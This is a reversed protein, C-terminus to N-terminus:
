ETGEMRKLELRRTYFGEDEIEVELMLQIHDFMGKEIKHVYAKGKHSLVKRDTKIEPITLLMEEEEEKVIALHFSIIDGVFPFDVLRYEHGTIDLGITALQYINSQSILRLLKKKDGLREICREVYQLILPTQEYYDMIRQGEKVYRERVENANVVEKLLGLHNPRITLPYLAKGLWSMVLDFDEPSKGNIEEAMKEGIRLIPMGNVDKTFSFSLRHSYFTKRGNPFLCESFFTYDGKKINM